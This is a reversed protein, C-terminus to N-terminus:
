SREVPTSFYGHLQVRPAVCIRAIVRKRARSILTCNHPKGQSVIDPTIVLKKQVGSMYVGSLIWTWRSFLHLLGKELSPCHGAYTVIKKSRRVNNCRVFDLMQGITTM